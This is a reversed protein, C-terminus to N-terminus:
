SLPQAPWPRAVELDLGTQSRRSKLVEPSAALALEAPRLRVRRDFPGGRAICPDQGAPEGLNGLAYGTHNWCPTEDRVFIPRHAQQNPRADLLTLGAFSQSGAGGHGTKVLGKDLYHVRPWFTPVDM